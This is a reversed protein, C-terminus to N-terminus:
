KMPSSPSAYISVVYVCLRCILRSFPITRRLKAVLAPHGLADATRGPEVECERDPHLSALLPVLNAVIKWSELICASVTGRRHRVATQLRSRMTESCNGCHARSISLWECPPVRGSTSCCKLHASRQTLLPFSDSSQSHAPGPPSESLPNICHGCLPPHPHPHPTM